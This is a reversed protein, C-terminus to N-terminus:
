PRLSCMASCPASYRSSRSTLQSGNLFFDSFLVGHSAKPPVNGHCKAKKGEKNVIRGELTNKGSKFSVVEGENETWEISKEPMFLAKTLFFGIVFFIILVILVIILVM